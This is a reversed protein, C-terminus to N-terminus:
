LAGGIWHGLAVAAFGALLSVAINAWLVRADGDEGARQSELMWTSFTTYTGVGGGALITYATGSLAVGALVGLVLAGSLNVVLTGIPFDGILRDGGRRTSVAGDVLFRACAMAGGLAAVAVWALATM